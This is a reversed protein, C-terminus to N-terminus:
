HHALLLCKSSGWDYYKWLQNPDFPDYPAATLIGDKQSLVVPYGENSLGLIVYWPKLKEAVDSINVLIQWYKPQLDTLAVIKSSSMTLWCGADRVDGLWLLKGPDNFVVQRSSESVALFISGFSILRFRCEPVGPTYAGTFNEGKQAMSRDVLFNVKLEDVKSLDTIQTPALGIKPLTMLPGPLVNAIPVFNWVGIPYEKGEVKVATGNYDVGASEARVPWGGIGTFGLGKTTESKSQNIAYMVSTGGAGPSASATNGTQTLVGQTFENRLQFHIPGDDFIIQWMARRSDPKQQIADLVKLGSAVVSNNPSVM